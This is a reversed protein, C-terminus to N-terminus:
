FRRNRFSNIIPEIDINNQKALQRVFQEETMGSNQMQTFMARVQPNQNIAQEVIAKPNGGSTLMRMLSQLNM